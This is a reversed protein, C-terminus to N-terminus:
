ATRRSKKPKAATPTRSGHNRDLLVSTPEDRPNQPVLKGEFAGRLISQRLRTARVLATEVTAAIADALSLRRSTEAVIARQESLSPTPIRIARIMSLNLNPQVGGSAVRRLAEYQAALVISVWPRMEAAAGLLRIAAIAQNTTASIRLEACKGRTRGEGYMAILLTGPPYVTLNTEALARESVFEEASEVLADNLQGSTVWPIAGQDWYAPNSRLPTAGTGVDAIAGLETVAWRQPLSRDGILRTDSRGREILIRDLLDKASETHSDQRSTGDRDVRVLTGASAAALVSARYRRILNLIRHAGAAAADLRSLHEEIAAVIRRQEAVPALPIQYEHMQEWDIRPRDGTNLHTAFRVFASSNLFYQLYKSDLLASPPFVIFEASCLGEFTPCYVKNLYPRLRGYLVDGPQFHVSSSKMQSSPVTGLLRMSNAEVHEMGIFPLAPTLSPSHRPRDPCLIEGLM